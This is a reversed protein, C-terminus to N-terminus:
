AAPAADDFVVTETRTIYTASVVAQYAEGKSNEFVGSAIMTDMATRITQEDMTQKVLDDDLTMQAKSGSATAFELQLSKKTAM